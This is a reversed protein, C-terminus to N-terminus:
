HPDAQPSDPDTFVVAEAFLRDIEAADVGLVKQCVERTHQGPMPAPRLEARPIHVFPAPGSETTLPADFLPHVMDSFVRRYRVQPDALVDDPRYMPAAPVGAAQLSEAVATKDRSATWEGIVAADVDAVGLVDALARHDADDRISVVCWEDDGACPYVGHVAPDERVPLGAAAAADSVYRTGLQHLVTAAQSIHIRAGVGTRDRDILAAVAAIAAVRAVVHDPFITTADLFPPRGDPPPEPASWLSTVGITARVLPGYGMRKSWPGIGGFASSEVLVIRPNLKQLEDFSFGLAALTGPKFNAFVADAQTVLRAFLEAGRPSRLDLGLSHQTRHAQAFSESMLQGPRRQRLGDPYTASEVKIVEAGLDAFQRGLEGGAVIIGLDVIRLGAFPRAPVDRGAAAPVRPPGAWEAAHEGVEPAATRLGARQGDVVFPGVPVPTAAGPALELQTLAGTVQFHEATLARAPTLVASIPVGRSQGAAVLAAMTEDAFLAAVLAYIERTAAIREGIREYKPDQFDAPEGLWARMAIWQRPALVCIRVHGDRCAFIPYLDQNRPRGRWTNARRLGSAAQGVAGFPPDLALVVAEYRSFDIFEGDGGNLRHFYAAIVAWAAQTTATSSAIGGPPLVPTGTPPGSRSLATSLAYLVPDTAQWSARPGSRGFDTVSLVVLHGFKRALEGCPVGLAAAAGPIGEDVVIDAHRALELFRARDADSAPDLVTGRKNANQLAFSVSVDALTPAEGRAASGGPPEIKLVDAGLDAFIRTVADAHGVTGWSALDLVRVGALPLGDRTM